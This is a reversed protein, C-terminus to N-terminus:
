VQQWYPAGPGTGDYDGSQMYVFLCARIGTTGNFNNVGDTTATSNHAHLSLRGGQQTGGAVEFVREYLVCENPEFLVLLLDGDKAGPVIIRDIAIIALSPHPMIRVAGTGEPLNVTVGKPYQYLSTPPFFNYIPSLSHLPAALREATVRNHSGDLRHQKGWRTQISAAIQDLENLLAQSLGGIM